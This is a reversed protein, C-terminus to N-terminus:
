ANNKYSLFNELVKLGGLQSKEPHFQTAFINKDQISAVFKEGYTCTSSIISKQPCKLHFSHVFYFNNDPINQFLINKKVIKIDNWGIHPLRLKGTNLKVVAGKILGLGDDKGFEHGIEGLLQMGLCIGLFPTKEKKIKKRLVNILGLKKLNKMGDGFTGVGPLIIHSANKIDMEKNSIVINAGVKKFSKEVSAINGMKYDIIVVKKNM